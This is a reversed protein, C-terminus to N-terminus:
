RKRDQKIGIFFVAICWLSIMIRVISGWFGETYLKLVFEVVLGLGGGLLCAIYVITKLGLSLRSM